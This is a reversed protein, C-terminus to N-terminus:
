TIPLRYKTTTHSIFGGLNFNMYVIKDHLIKRFFNTEKLSSLNSTIHIKCASGIYNTNYSKLPRMLTQFPLLNSEHFALDDSNNTLHRLIYPFSKNSALQRHVLVMFIIKKKQPILFLRTQNHLQFNWGILKCCILNLNNYNKM